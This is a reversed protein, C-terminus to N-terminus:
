NLSKCVTMFLSDQMKDQKLYMEGAKTRYNQSGVEVSKPVIGRTINYHEPVAKEINERNLAKLLGKRINSNQMTETKCILAFAGHQIM